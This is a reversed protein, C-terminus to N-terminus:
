RLQWIQHKHWHHVVRPVFGFFNLVDRYLDVVAALEEGARRRSLLSAGDYVFFILFVANMALAKGAYAGQHGTLVSLGAIVVSSAILSLALQGMFSFDRGCSLTYIFAFSPGILLAWLPLGLVSVSKATMAVMFLLPPITFSSLVGEVRTSRFGIRILCLMILFGILSVGVPIIPMVPMRDLSALIAILGLSVLQLAQVRRSFRLRVPYPQKTVNDPIEIPEPVYNPVVM